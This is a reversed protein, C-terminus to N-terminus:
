ETLLLVLFTVFLHITLAMLATNVASHCRRSHATANECLHLRIAGCLISFDCLKQISAIEFNVPLLFFGKQPESIRISYLRNCLKVM